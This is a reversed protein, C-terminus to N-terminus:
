RRGKLLRVAGRLDLNSRFFKFDIKSFIKCKPVFKTFFQFFFYWFNLIVMPFWFDLFIQEDIKEEVELNRVSWFVVDDMGLWTINREQELKQM